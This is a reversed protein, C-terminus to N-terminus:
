GQSHGTFSETQNYVAASTWMPAEFCVVSSPSMNKICSHMTYFSEVWKNSDVSHIHTHTHTPLLSLKPHPKVPSAELLRMPSFGSPSSTLFTPLHHAHGCSLPHTQLLLDTICLVVYSCTAADSLSVPCGLDDNKCEKWKLDRRRTM